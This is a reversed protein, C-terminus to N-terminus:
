RAASPKINQNACFLNSPDYRDKLARLRPYSEPGFSAIVRDEGEDGIFNVYVRGTTFPRMAASFERTWAINADDDAPDAWLSTVHINFPAHRQDVAM